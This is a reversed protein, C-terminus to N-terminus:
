FTIAMCLVITISLLDTLIMSTEFYLFLLNWNIIYSSYLISLRRCSFDGSSSKTFVVVSAHFIKQFNGRANLCSVSADSNEYVSRAGGMNRNHQKLRLESQNIKTQDYMEYFSRKEGRVCKSSYTPLYM